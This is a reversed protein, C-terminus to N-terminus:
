GASRRCPTSRSLGDATLRLGPRSVFHYQLYPTPPSLAVVDWGTGEFLERAYGEFYSAWLLPRTPDLDRLPEVRPGGTTTDMHGNM